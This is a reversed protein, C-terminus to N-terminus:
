EKSLNCWKKLVLLVYQLDQTNIGVKLNLLILNENIVGIVNKELCM